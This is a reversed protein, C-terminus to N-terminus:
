EQVLPQFGCREVCLAYLVPVVLLTLGTGVVLGSIMCWGLGAWLPGGTVALPLLGGVTTATTLFIPILRREGAKTLCERFEAVTLGHIPGVGNTEKSKEKLVFDAHDVFIIATNLVIGFLALIGLQPMFGLPNGSLYLGPMAGAAALPLTTVIIFPKVWGSFQIVLLLVILVMSILGAVETEKASKISETMEGAIDLWMTSPMEAQLDRMAESSMVRAVVDNALVGPKVRANIEIVRNVDRRTVKAPVWQQKWQSIADLPVKGQETDVHVAPLVELGKRQHAPARLFVPVLHDGERFTTLQRGAYFTRLTEAVAKSTVGSVASRDQNVDLRLECVQAGWSDTVDWTGVDDQVVLKIRHAYRRMIEMDAFGSGYLRLGVPADVPPGLTLIRPIVRAGSIAEIGLDERGTLATRRIEQAFGHTLVPDTTEVLIEAYNSQTPQPNRGLYWRSEGGGVVTRMCRLRQSGNGTNSLGRILSEVQAAKHSTQAITAGEPLWVEIPFQRRLDKPFFETGVPLCLALALTLGCFVLAAWKHELAWAALRRYGVMCWDSPRGLRSIELDGFLRPFGRLSPCFRRGCSLWNNPSNSRPIIQYALVTCLTMALIWSLALTTSVTVPLSYLYERNAGQYGILMPLFAAITTATGFLMPKAVQNAGRTTAEKPDMGEQSNVRCQDTVQVANDVLLGLAIVISALSVTELQVGFVGIVALTGLIVVPINAAMVIAPRLGVVLFVVVVVIAVAEVVNLIVGNLKTSVVESRDSIPAVIINPPIVKDVDRLNQIRDKAAGCVTTIDAGSEMEVSLMVCPAIEETTGFRCITTPPDLYDRVVEVPLDELQIPTRMKGGDGTASSSLAIEGVMRFEGSPTLSIRGTRTDVVGGSEVINRQQVISGLIEANLGLTAWDQPTAEIYVAEQQVGVRSIKAVGPVLRIQDAVQRSIIDLQRPSYDFKSPERGSQAKTQYVAFLIVSTDGFDDYVMLHINETPMPVQDIRARVKDWVNDIENPGIWDETDVYVVSLGQLTTSYVVKIGNVQRVAKEIKETVLQEVRETSAGPWNTVIACTRITFEPDERRPMYFFCIGGWLLLVTMVALITTPHGLSFKPLNM